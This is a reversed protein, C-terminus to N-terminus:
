SVSAIPLYVEVGPTGPTATLSITERATPSATPSSTATVPPGISTASPESGPTATGAVTTATPLRNDEGGIRRGPKLLVVGRASGLDFSTVLPDAYPDALNWHDVIRASGRPVQLGNARQGYPPNAAVWGDEFERFLVGEDVYYEGLPAGLHLSVPDFEPLWYYELYSWVTFSLYGNDREENLAMLFGAIAFWLADWGTTGDAGEVGDDARVDMRALGESAALDGARGHCTVLVPITRERMADIKERWEHYNYTYRGYSKVLGGEQMAAFPPYPQAELEDWYEPKSELYGFNPILKVQEPKAALQPVAREFFSNTDARWKDHLLGDRYYTEPFDQEEPHGERHWNGSSVVDYTTGDSFIADAATNDEDSEEGWRARYFEDVWYQQWDGHGPIMMRSDPYVKHQLYEGHFAGQATWREATGIGHNAKMWEWGEGLDGWTATNYVGPGAAYLAIVIDPNLERLVQWSNMGDGAWARFHGGTTILLDFNATEEAPRVGERWGGYKITFSPIFKEVPPVAEPALVRPPTLERRPVNPLVGERPAAAPEGERPAAAPEGERPAAAPEGVAPSVPSGHANMRSGIGLATSVALLAFIAVARLLLAILRRAGPSGPESRSASRLSRGNM